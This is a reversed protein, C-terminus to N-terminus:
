YLTTVEAVKKKDAKRWAEQGRDREKQVRTDSM